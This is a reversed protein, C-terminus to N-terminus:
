KRWNVSTNLPAFDFTRRAHDIKGCVSRVLQVVAIVRQLPLSFNAGIPKRQWKWSFLLSCPCVNRLWKQTQLNSPKKQSVSQLCTAIRVKAFFSLWLIQMRKTHNINACSTSRSRVQSVTLVLRSYVLTSRLFIKRLLVLSMRSTKGEIQNLIWVSWSQNRAFGLTSLFNWEAPFSHGHKTASSRQKRFLFSQPIYIQVRRTHFGCVSRSRCWM